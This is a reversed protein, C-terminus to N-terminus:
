RQAARMALVAALGEDCTPRIEEPPLVFGGRGMKPRLEITFSMAEAEGYAWDSMTGAAAYLEIGQMLAYRKQHQAYIASAIRDGVAAFRDRDKTPQPVHNWPYLLLQGFAHFDVHLAIRERKGLDRLAASEPESFAHEGRYDQARQNKSSGRGGWGISFNRNLDVGFGGRRNKRWYRDSAWSHQYGDPNVVPVVWLETGDVFARIAPDRDYERVLRDAVCTTVMAAIWERAHQTGNILMATGTTPGIRLAWITRGDLSSGIGHMTVRGPALTALEIMRETIARYDRYEAFWDAPQRVASARLRAAEARATADIDPDIVHWQVRATDLRALSDSSVVVDLPLGPGRHESWVDLALSEALVCAAPATCDVRIAVRKPPTGGPSLLAVACAVLGITALKTWRTPGSGFYNAAIQDLFRAM